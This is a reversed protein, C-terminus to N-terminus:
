ELPTGLIGGTHGVGANNVLIDLAPFRAHVEDALACMDERRGVDVRRELVASPGLEAAIARAREADLDVVILKAGAHALAFATARGIGSGAGTVLAVRGQFSTEGM